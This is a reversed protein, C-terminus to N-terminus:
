VSWNIIGREHAGQNVKGALQGAEALIQALVAELDILLESDPLNKIEALLMWAQDNYHVVRNLGFRSLLYGPPM